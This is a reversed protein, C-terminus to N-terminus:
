LVDRGCEPCRDPTARLDYGCAACLDQQGRRLNRVRQGWRFTARAGWPLALVTALPLLPIRVQSAWGAMPMPPGDRSRTLYEIWATGARGHITRVPLSEGHLVACRYWQFPVDFPCDPAVAHWVQGRDISTLTLNGGAPGGFAWYSAWYSRAWIAATAVALALLLGLGSNLL